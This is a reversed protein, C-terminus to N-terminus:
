DEWDLRQGCFPCYTRESGEDHYLENSCRPCTGLTYEYLGNFMEEKQLKMPNQKEVAEEVKLLDEENDFFATAYPEYQKFKGDVDQKILIEDQAGTVIRIKDVIM